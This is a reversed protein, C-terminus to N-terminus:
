GKVQEGLDQRIGPGPTRATCGRGKPFSAMSSAAPSERLTIIGLSRLASTAVVFVQSRVSRQFSLCCTLPGQDM